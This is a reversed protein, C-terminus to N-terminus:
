TRPAMPNARRQNGTRKFGDWVRRRLRKRINQRSGTGKSVEEDVRAAFDGRLKNALFIDIDSKSPFAEIKRRLMELTTENECSLYNLLTRREARTRTGQRPAARRM